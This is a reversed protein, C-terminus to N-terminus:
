VHPAPNGLALLVAADTPEGATRIEAFGAAALPAAAAASIAVALRGAGGTRGLSGAVAQAARPSHVLVADFDAPPTAKTETAEYIPLIVTEVAGNLLADLDGAPQRAGPVLIRGTAEGSILWALDSLAGSASAVTAFGAQRAREATADGVAFVPLSRDASLDAFVAVGNPSTFALATIGTLDPAPQLIPRVALVPAILPEFGRAALRAATRSAGPETRTM